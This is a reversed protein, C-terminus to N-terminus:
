AVPKGAAWAANAAAVMAPTPPALVMLKNVVYFQIEIAACGMTHAANYLSQGVHYNAYRAHRLGRGPHPAISVIYQLSTATPAKTQPKARVGAIANAPNIAAVPAAVPAPKRGPVKTVTHGAAIATAAITALNTNTNGM